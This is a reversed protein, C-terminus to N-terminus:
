IVRSWWLPTGGGLWERLREADVYHAGTRGALHKIRNPPGNFMLVRSDGWYEMGEILSSDLTIKGEPQIDCYGHDATGILGTHPPVSGALRDWVRGTGMLARSYEDSRQGYRHATTDVSPLYVMMLTRGGGDLLGWSRIHSLLSYGYKEAGRYLMNSFPSNM